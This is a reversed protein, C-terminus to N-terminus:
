FYHARKTLKKILVKGKGNPAIVYNIGKTPYFLLNNFDMFNTM